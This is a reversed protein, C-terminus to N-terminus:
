NKCARQTAFSGSEVSMLMAKEKTDISSRQAHTRIFLFFFLSPFILNTLLSCIWWCTSYCAIDVLIKTGRIVM